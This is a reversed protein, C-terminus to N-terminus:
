RDYQELDVVLQLQEDEFDQLLKKLAESHTQTLFSFEETLDERLARISTEDM